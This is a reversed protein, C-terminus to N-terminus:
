TYLFVSIICINYIYAFIVCWARVRARVRVYVCMFKM